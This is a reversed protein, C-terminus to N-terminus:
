LLLITAGSDPGQIEKCELIVSFLKRLAQAGKENMEAEGFSYELHVGGDSEDDRDAHEGGEGVGRGEVQARAAHELAGLGLLTNLVGTGSRSLCKPMKIQVILHLNPSLHPSSDNGM